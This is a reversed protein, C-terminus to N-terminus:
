IQQRNLDRLYIQWNTTLKFESPQCINEKKVYPRVIEGNAIIGTSLLRVSKCCLLTTISLLRTFQVKNRKVLSLLLLCVCQVARTFTTRNDLSNFLYVYTRKHNCTIKNYRYRVCVHVHIRALETNLYTIDKLSHVDNEWHQYTGLSYM